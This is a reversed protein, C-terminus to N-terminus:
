KVRKFVFGKWGNESVADALLYGNESMAKQVEDGREDIIGSMAIDAGIKLYNKLQPALRILIDAVINASAFDYLGEGIAKGSLLDATECIM